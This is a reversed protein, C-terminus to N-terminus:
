KPNYMLLWKAVCITLIIPIPILVLKLVAVALSNIVSIEIM